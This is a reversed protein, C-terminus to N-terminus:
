ANLASNIFWQNEPCFNEVAERIMAGIFRPDVDNNVALNAFDALTSGEDIAQCTLRGMEIAKAKGLLTVEGPFDYTLGDLYNEEPGVPPNTPAVYQTTEPTQYSGSTGTSSCGVLFATMLLPAVLTKKM